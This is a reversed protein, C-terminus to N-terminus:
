SKYGLNHDIVLPVFRVLISKFDECGCFSNSILIFIALFVLDLEISTKYNHLVLINKARLKWHLLFTYM